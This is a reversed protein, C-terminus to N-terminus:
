EPIILHNTDEDRLRLSTARHRIYKYMESDEGVEKKNVKKFDCCWSKAIYMM